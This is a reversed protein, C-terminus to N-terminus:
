VWSLTRALGETNHSTMPATASNMTLLPPSLYRVPSAKSTRLLPKPRTPKGNTGAAKIARKLREVEKRKEKETREKEEM